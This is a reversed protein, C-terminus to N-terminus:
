TPTMEFDPFSQTMKSQPTRSYAEGVLHMVGLGHTQYPTMRLWAAAPCGALGQLEAIGEASSGKRRLERRGLSGIATPPMGMWGCLSSAWSEKELGEKSM